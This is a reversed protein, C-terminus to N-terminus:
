KNSNGMLISFMNNTTHYLFLIDLGPCGGEMIRLLACMAYVLLGNIIMFLWM